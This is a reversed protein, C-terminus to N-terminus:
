FLPEIFYTIGVSILLRNYVINMNTPSDNILFMENHQLPNSNLNTFGIINKDRSFSYQISTGILTKKAKYMAGLTIHYINWAENNVYIFEDSNDVVTSYDTRFNFYSTIKESLKKNISIGFNFIPKSQQYTTLLILKGNASLDENSPNIIVFHTNNPAVVIKPKIRAFYEAGIGIQMDKFRKTFGVAFSFPSSYNTPLDREKNTAIFDYPGYAQNNEDRFFIGTSTINGGLDGSGYIHASPTTFTLGFNFNEEIYVLGLKMLIRADFYELSYKFSTTVAVDNETDAALSRLEFTNRQSRFASFLTIGIGWHKTARGWSIGAWYETLYKDYSFEGSYFEKDSFLKPFNEGLDVEPILDTTEQKIYSYSLDDFEKEFIIYGFQGKPDINIPLHGATMNPIISFAATYIDNNEGAANYAKIEQASFLNGNLSFKKNLNGLNGPNYFATSFDNIGAVSAAGLLSAENGPFLNWQHSDQAFYNCFILISLLLKKM